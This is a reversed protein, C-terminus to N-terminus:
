VVPNSHLHAWRKGAKIRSITNDRVGYESAIIKQKRTDRLIAIVQAETLKASACQEGQNSTGHKVRDLQNASPTDWRLNRLFNNTADGDNHCCEHGLPNPGVFAILVLRHVKACKQKGNRWIMVRMRNDEKSKNQSKIAGTQANKVRGHDSVEYLGEYGVVPKWTEIM